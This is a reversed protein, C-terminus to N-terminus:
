FQQAALRQVRAPPPDGPERVPPPPQPYPPEETPSEPPVEPPPPEMPDDAPVEEPPTEAWQTGGLYLSEGYTPIVIRIM